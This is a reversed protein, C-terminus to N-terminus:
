HMLTANLLGLNTLTVVHCRTVKRFRSFYLRYAVFSFKSSGLLFLKKIAKTQRIVQGGSIVQDPLFFVSQIRKLNQLAGWTSGRAGSVLVYALIRFPPKPIAWLARMANAWLGCLM